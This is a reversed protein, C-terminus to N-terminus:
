SNRIGFLAIGLLVLSVSALVGMRLRRASGCRGARSRAPAAGAVPAPPRVEPQTGGRARGTGADGRPLVAAARAVAPRAARAPATGARRAPVAGPRSPRYGARSSRSRAAPGRSGAARAAPGFRRPPGSAAGARLGRRSSRPGGSPRPPEPRRPRRVPGPEPPTRRPRSCGRRAAAARVGRPPVLPRVWRPVPTGRVAPRGTRPPRGLRARGPRPAAAGAAGAGPMAATEGPAPTGGPWAPRQRHRARPPRGRGRRGGPARRARRVAGPRGDAPGPRARAAAALSGPPPGSDGPGDFPGPTPVPGPRRVGARRWRGASAPRVGGWPGSRRRPRGPEVGRVGARTSWRRPTPRRSQCRSRGPPAVEAPRQPRDGRGPTPVQGSREAGDPRCRRRRGSPRGAGATRRTGLGADRRAGCNSRGRDPGGGPAAAVRPTADAPRVPSGTARGLPPVVPEAAGVAARGAARGRCGGRRRPRGSRARRRGPARGAAGGTAPQSRGPGRVARATPAGPRARSEPALASAAPAPVVSEQRRGAAAPREPRGPQDRVAPGAPRPPACPRVAAAPRAADRRAYPPRAPQGPGPQRAPGPRAPRRPAAPGPAAGPPRAPGGASPSPLSPGCASAPPRVAPSAPSGTGSPRRPAAPARRAPRTRRARADGAGDGPRPGPTALARRARVAAPVAEPARRAAGRVGSRYSRAAPRGPAGTVPRRAGPGRGSSAPRSRLDDIWGFEEGRGAGGARPEGGARSGVPPGQCASRAARRPRGGTAGFWAIESSVRGPPTAAARTRGMGAHGGGGVPPGREAAPTPRTRREAGPAPAPLGRVVRRLAAGAPRGAAGRCRARQALLLRTGVLDDPAYQQALVGRPDDHPYRYGRRSRTRARRPLARRTIARCRVAPGARRGRDGRRDGGRGREVEARHGHPDRGPGPQAPRPCASSRSRGPRRPRTQLATPDAM